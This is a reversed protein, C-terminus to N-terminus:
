APLALPPHSLVTELHPWVHSQHARSDGGGECCNNVGWRLGTLMNARFTEPCRSRVWKRFLSPCESTRPLSIVEQSCCHRHIFCPPLGPCDVSQMIWILRNLFLYKTRYANTQYSPPSKFAPFAKWHLHLLQPAAATNLRHQPARLVESVRAM